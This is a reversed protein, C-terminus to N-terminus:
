PLQDLLECFDAPLDRMVAADSDGLLKRAREVAPRQPRLSALSAIQLAGGGFMILAGGIIDTM